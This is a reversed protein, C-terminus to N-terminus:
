LLDDLGCDCSVGENSTCAIDHQAYKQLARVHHLLGGLTEGIANTSTRNVPYGIEELLTALRDRRRSREPIADVLAQMTPYEQGEGVGVDSLVEQMLPAAEAVWQDSVGVEHVDGSLQIPEKM